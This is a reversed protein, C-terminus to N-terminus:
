GISRVSYEASFSDLGNSNGTFEIRMTPGNSVIVPPIQDSNCLKTIEPADLDPGDLIRIITRYYSNACVDNTQNSVIISNDALNHVIDIHTFTLTVKSQPTNSIITWTCNEHLM